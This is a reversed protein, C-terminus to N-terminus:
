SFDGGYRKWSACETDIVCPRRLRGDGAIAPDCPPCMRPIAPFVKWRVPIRTASFGGGLIARFGDACRASRRWFREGQRSGVAEVLEPSYPVELKMIRQREAHGDQAQAGLGRTCACFIKHQSARACFITRCPLIERLLAEAIL